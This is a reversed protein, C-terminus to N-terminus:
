QPIVSVVAEERTFMKDFNSIDMQDRSLQPKFEAKYMKNFMKGTELDKFWPHQLVESVGEKSAIRKKPDKELCKMIFDKCDDSIVIGHKAADPFVPDKEKILNYMKMTSTNSNSSGVYFPPFGILM